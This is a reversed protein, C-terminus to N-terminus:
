VFLVDNLKVYFHNLGHNPRKLQSGFHGEKPVMRMIAHPRM